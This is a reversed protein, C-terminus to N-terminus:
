LNNGCKYDTLKVLSGWWRDKKVINGAGFFGSKDKFLKVFALNILFIKKFVESFRWM